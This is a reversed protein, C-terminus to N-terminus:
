RRAPTRARRRPDMPVADAGAHRLALNRVAAHGRNQEQRVARIREDVESWRSAIAYTEDTSGDDAILLEWDGFTQNLVSAVARELTRLGNYVPTLISVSPMSEGM